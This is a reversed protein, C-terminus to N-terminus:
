GYKRLISHLSVGITTGIAYGVVGWVTGAITLERQRPVNMRGAFAAATAPGGVAANSAVLIEQLGIRRFPFICKAVLSGAFAVIIHVSLALLSFCVCAPGHLLASRLNCNMGIAAFFLLLTFESLKVAAGEMQKAFASSQKSLLRQIPPSVIAIVACATGPLIPSLYGEVASAMKVIVLALATVFTTASVNTAVPITTKKKSVLPTSIQKAQDEKAKSSRSPIEGDFVRALFKSKLALAMVAFYLAMVFTDAAAMAGMLTSM